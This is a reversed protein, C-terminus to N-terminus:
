EGRLEELDDAQGEIIYLLSMVRDYSDMAIFNEIWVDDEFVKNLMKKLAKGKRGLEAKDPKRKIKSKNGM